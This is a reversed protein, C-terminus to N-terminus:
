FGLRNRMRRVAIIWAGVGLALLYVVSWPLSTSLIGLAPGRVIEISHYLPLFRVFDQVPAPYVSLPYFTTAFLFMPLLFLQLFQMDELQKVFSTVALGLAGFSFGILAAGPIAGLLAWSRSVGLLSMMVIFGGAALMARLVAWIIEGLMIDRIGLPTTLISEYVKDRLRGFTAYTTETIAANMASTAILGPAVFEAYTVHREALEPLVGILSGVGVGITLLYLAPEFMSAALM